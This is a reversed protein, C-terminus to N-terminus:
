KRSRTNSQGPVSVQKQKQRVGLFVSGSKLGSTRPSDDNEYDM